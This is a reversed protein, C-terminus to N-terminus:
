LINIYYVFVFAQCKWSFMTVHICFFLRSM